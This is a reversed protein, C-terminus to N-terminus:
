ATQQSYTLTCICIPGRGRPVYLRTPFVTVTNDREHGRCVPAERRRGASGAGDDLYGDEGADGGPRWKWYVSDTCTGDQRRQGWGLLSPSKNGRGTGGKM